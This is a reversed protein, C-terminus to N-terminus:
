TDDEPKIFLLAMSEQEQLNICTCSEYIEGPECGMAVDKSCSVSDPQGNTNRCYQAIADWKQGVCCGIDEDAAMGTTAFMMSAWFVTVAFRKIM